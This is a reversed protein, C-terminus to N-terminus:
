LPRRRREWPMEGPYYASLARARRFALQYDEPQAAASDEQIEWALGM